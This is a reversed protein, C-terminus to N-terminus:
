KKSPLNTRGDSSRQPITIEPLHEQFHVTLYHFMMEITREGGSMAGGVDPYPRVLQWEDEQITDLLDIVKAHAADYATALSARDHNRAKWRTVYINLFNFLPAPIPILRRKRLLKIDQPLIEVAMAMHVLMQRNNWAPNGSPLEPADEPVRALLAQFEARTDEPEARLAKKRGEHDTNQAAANIIMAM